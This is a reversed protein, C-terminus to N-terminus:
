RRDGSSASRARRVFSVARGGGCLCVEAGRGGGLKVRRPTGSGVEGVAAVDRRVVRPAMVRSEAGSFRSTSIKFELVPGEVGRGGFPLGM